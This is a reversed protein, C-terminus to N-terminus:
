RRAEERLYSLTQKRAWDTPTIYRWVGMDDFRHVAFTKTIKEHILLELEALRDRDEFRQLRGWLQISDKRIRYALREWSGRFRLSSYPDIDKDGTMERVISVLINPDKRFLRAITKITNRAPTDPMPHEAPLAIAWEDPRYNEKDLDRLLQPWSPNGANTTILTDSSHNQRGGYIRRQGGYARDLTGELEEPRCDFYRLFYHERFIRDLDSLLDFYRIEDRFCAELDRKTKDVRFARRRADWEDQAELGAKADVLLDVSLNDALPCICGLRYTKKGLELADQIKATYYEKPAM